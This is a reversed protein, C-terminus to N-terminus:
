GVKKNDFEYLKTATSLTWQSFRSPGKSHIPGGEMIRKKGKTGVYPGAIPRGKYSFVVLQRPKPYKVEVLKKFYSPDVRPGYKQDLELEEGTKQHETKYEFDDTPDYRRPDLGVRTMWRQWDPGHGKETQHKSHLGDIEWVSEHCMEHLFVELFFPERGNFMFPAMGLVGSGNSLGLYSGRVRPGMGTGVQIKPIKMRSGFKEANLCKWLQIMYPVRHGASVKAKYFMQTLEPSVKVFGLHSTDPKFSTDKTM